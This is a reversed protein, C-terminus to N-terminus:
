FHSSQMAFLRYLSPRSNRGSRVEFVPKEVGTSPLEIPAAVARVTLKSRTSYQPALRSGARAPLSLARPGGVLAGLRTSGIAM